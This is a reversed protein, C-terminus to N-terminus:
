RAGEVVASLHTAAPAARPPPRFVVASPTSSRVRVVTAALWAGTLAAHVSAGPVDVSAGRALDMGGSAELLWPGLWPLPARRLSLAVSRPAQAALAPRAHPASSSNRPRNRLPM